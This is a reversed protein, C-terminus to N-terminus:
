YLVRNITLEIYFVTIRPYYVHTVYYAAVSSTELIRERGGELFNEEESSFTTPRYNLQM